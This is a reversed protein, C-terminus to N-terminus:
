KVKTWTNTKGFPTNCISGKLFLTGDPNMKIRGCYNKGDKYVKGDTWEGKGSDWKFDWVVIKGVIPKDHEKPDKNKVDKLNPIKHWVCKGRLEGDSTKYLEIKADKDEVLWTGLVDDQNAAYANIGAYCAVLLIM